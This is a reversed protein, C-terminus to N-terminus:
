AGVWSLGLAFAPVAAFLSDLRDFVGGHGPLLSSSDKTGAERKVLSEFLDGVVSFGVTVLGLAALGVVPEPALGLLLGGAMMVAVGGALAGWVGAWTKGPSIRPALRRRGFRRGTFFACIDAAWVLALLLLFWVPGQASLHLGTLLVWALVVGLLGGLAKFPAPLRREGSREVRALWVAVLCWGLVGAWAAGVVLRAPGVAWATAMAALALALYAGQWAPGAVPVLRSWEWLAVMFVGAAVAAVAATPLLWIGAVVPPALLLATIVRRGLM